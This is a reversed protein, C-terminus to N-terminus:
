REPRHSIQARLVRRRMGSTVVIGSKDMGRDRISLSEECANPIVGKVGIFDLSLSVSSLGPLIVVTESPSTVTDHDTSTFLILESFSSGSELGGLGGRHAHEANEVSRTRIYASSAIDGGQGGYRRLYHCTILTPLITRSRITRRDRKVPV